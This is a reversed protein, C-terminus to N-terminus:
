SSKWINDRSIGPCVTERNTNWWVFRNMSLWSHTITVCKCSCIFRISTIVEDPTLFVRKLKAPFICGIPKDGDMYRDLGIIGAYNDAGKEKWTQILAETGDTSGDDIVLWDFDQCTQACLSRYLRDLTHARNFTPTFVTLTKMVLLHVVYLGLVRRLRPPGM